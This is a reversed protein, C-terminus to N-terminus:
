QPARPEDVQLKERLTHLSSRLAAHIGGCFATISANRTSFGGTAVTTFAHNIADFVPMGTLRYSLVCLLTITMYTLVINKALTSTRPTDKTRESFETRFLKMGGVNMAPLVAIAIIIFGIGGIWQLISRWLLVSRPVSEVDPIVSAGMTTLGSMTEFVAGTFDLSTLLWIPLAGFLCGLIWVSSTLIFMDRMSLSFHRPRASHTLIFAVSETIVFSAFFRSLGESATFFCYIIPIWMFVALKSLILGLMTVISRINLM